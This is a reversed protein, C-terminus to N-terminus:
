LSKSEILKEIDSLKYRVRTGIRLPHVIGKKEWDIITVATVQFIDCIQKRNVLKSLPKPLRNEISDLRKSILDIKAVTTPDSVQLQISQSM